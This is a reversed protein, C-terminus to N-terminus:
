GASSKRSALVSPPPLHDVQALFAEVEARQQRERLLRGAALAANERAVDQSLLRHLKESLASM